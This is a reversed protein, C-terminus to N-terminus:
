LFVSVGAIACAPRVLCRSNCVVLTTRCRSGQEPDLGDQLTGGSCTTLETFSSSTRYWLPRSARSRKWHLFRVTWIGACAWLLSSQSLVEMNREYVTSCLVQSSTDGTNLLLSPDGREVQQCHKDKHLGLPKAATACQQKMSLTKEM